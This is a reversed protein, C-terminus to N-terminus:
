WGSKMNAKSTRGIWMNSMKMMKKRAASKRTTTTGDKTSLATRRKKTSKINTTTKKAMIAPTDEMEEGTEDIDVDTAEQFFM